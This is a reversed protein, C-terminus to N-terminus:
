IGSPPEERIPHIKMYDVVLFSRMSDRSRILTSGQDIVYPLTCTSYRCRLHYNFSGFDKKLKHKEQLTQVISNPDSAAIMLDDVYV